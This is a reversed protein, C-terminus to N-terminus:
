TRSTTAPWSARRRRAHGDRVRHRAAVLAAREVDVGPDAPRWRGPVAAGRRRGLDVVKGRTSSSHSSRSAAGARGRARRGRVAARDRQRRRRRRADLTQEGLVRASLQRAACERALAQSSRTRRDRRVGLDKVTSRPSARLTQAPGRTCPAAAPLADRSRAVCIGDIGGGGEAVRRVTRWRAATTPSSCTTARHTSARAGACRRPRRIRAAPRFRRTLWQQAARRRTARGRPRRSATSRWRPSPAASRPRPACPRRRGPQRPVPPLERLSSSARGLGLRPRRRARGRRRVRDGGRPAAHPGEDAGLRVRDPAEQDHGAAMRASVRLEAPQVVLRQRRERRRAQGALNNVPADGRLWFSSRTTRRCTSRCRAARSRTAPHRRPRLGPAAGATRVTSPICRRRARRRVRRREVAAIDDFDDLIRTAAAGHPQALTPPACCALPSSWCRLRARHSAVRRRRMMGQRKGGDPGSTTASCSSSCRAAGAAGDAGVGAMM